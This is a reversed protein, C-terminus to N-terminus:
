LYNKVMGSKYLKKKSITSLLPLKALAWGVVAVGPIETWLHEVKERSCQYYKVVLKLDKWFDSLNKKHFRKMIRLRMYLESYTVKKLNAMSNKGTVHVISSIIDITKFDSPEFNTVWFWWDECYNISEDFPILTGVRKFIVSEIMFPNRVFLGNVSRQNVLHMSTRHLNDNVVQSRSCVATVGHAEELIDIGTKIFDLSGEDDADLFYIYKGKAKNLGVNRAVSRGPSCHFLSIKKDKQAIKKVIDSTGDQSNNIIVIIEHECILHKVSNIARAITEQNNAAPIIVSLLIQQNM